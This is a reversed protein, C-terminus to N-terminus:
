FGEGHHLLSARHPGIGDESLRAAVSERLSPPPPPPPEAPEQSSRPKPPPFPKRPAPSSSTNPPTQSGGSMSRPHMTLSKRQPSVPEQEVRTLKTSRHRRAPKPPPVASVVKGGGGGGGGRGEGGGEGGKTGEEGGRSTGRESESGRETKETAEIAFDKKMSGRNARPPKKPPIVRENARLNTDGEEKKGGPPSTPRPDSGRGGKTKGRELSKPKPPPPPKKVSGASGTKTLPMCSTTGFVLSNDSGVSGRQAIGGGTESTTSHYSALSDRQSARCPEEFEAVQEHPASSAFVDSEFGKIHSPSVPNWSSIKEGSTAGGPGSGGQIPILHDGPLEGKSQQVKRQLLPSPNPSPIEISPKLRTRRSPKPPATASKNHTLTSTSHDPTLLPSPTGEKDGPIDAAAAAALSSPVTYNM